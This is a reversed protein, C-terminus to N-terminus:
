EYIRTPVVPGHKILKPLRFAQDTQSKLTDHERHEAQRALNIYENLTLIRFDKDEVYFRASASGRAGDVRVCPQTHMSMHSFDHLMDESIFETLANIDHQDKVLVVTKKLLFNKRM